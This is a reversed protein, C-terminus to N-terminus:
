TTIVGQINFHFVYNSLTANACLSCCIGKCTSNSCLILLTCSVSSWMLPTKNSRIDFINLDEYRWALSRPYAGSEKVFSYKSSILCSWPTFETDQPSSIDSEPSHEVSLLVVIGGSSSPRPLLLFITSFMADDVVDSSLVNTRLAPFDFVMLTQASCSM